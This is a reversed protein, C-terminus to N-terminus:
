NLEFRAQDPTPHRAPRLAQKTDRHQRVADLEGQLPQIRGILAALSESITM